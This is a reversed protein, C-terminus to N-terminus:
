GNANNRCEKCIFRGPLEYGKAIDQPGITTKTPVKCGCTKCNWFNGLRSVPVRGKPRKVTIKPPRKNRKKTPVLDRMEALDLPM